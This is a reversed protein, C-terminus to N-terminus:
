TITGIFWCTKLVFIGNVKCGEDLNNYKKNDVSKSIASLLYLNLESQIAYNIISATYIIDLFIFGIVSLVILAQKASGAIRGILVEIIVAFAVIENESSVIM